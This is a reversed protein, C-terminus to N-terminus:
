EEIDSCTTNQDLCLSFLVEQGETVLGGEKVEQGGASVTLLGPPCSQLSVCLWLLLVGTSFM